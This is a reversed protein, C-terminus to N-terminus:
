GDVQMLLASELQVPAHISEIVRELDDGSTQLRVFSRTSGARLTLLCPWLALAAPVPPPLSVVCVWPLLPPGKGRFGGCQSDLFIAGLLVMLRGRM